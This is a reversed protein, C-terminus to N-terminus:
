VNYTKIREYENLINCIGQNTIELVLKTKTKSIITIPEDGLYQLVHFFEMDEKIIEGNKIRYPIQLTKGEKYAINLIEIFTNLM